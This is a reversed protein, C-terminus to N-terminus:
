PSKYEVLMATLMMIIGKCLWTNYPLSVNVNVREKANQWEEMHKKKMTTIEKKEKRERGM